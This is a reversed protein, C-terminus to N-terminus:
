IMKSKSIATVFNDIWIDLVAKVAQTNEEGYYVSLKALHRPSLAMKRQEDLQLWIEFHPLYITRVKELAGSKLLESVYLATDPYAESPALRQYDPLFGSQTTKQTSSCGTVFLALFFWLIICRM